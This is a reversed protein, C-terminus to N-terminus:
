AAGALYVDFGAKARTRNSATASAYIIRPRVSPRRREM